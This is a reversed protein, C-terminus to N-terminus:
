DMIKDINESYENNKYLVAFIKDDSSLVIKGCNLSIDINMKNPMVDNIDGYIHMMNNKLSICVPMNIIPKKDTNYALIYSDKSNILFCMFELGSENCFDKPSEWFGKIDCIQDNKKKLVYWCIGIILIIIIAVIINKTTINFM